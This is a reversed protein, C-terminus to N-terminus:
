GPSYATPANTRPRVVRYFTAPSCGLQECIEAVTHARSAYLAQGIAIQKPTLKPRRGGLRGRARAAALGEMTRENILDRELEAIAGMVHYFFRGMGSSTDIQDQLSRLGIGKAKCEQALSILHQLSRSVRDLKWFVLTDGPRMYQLAKTLGPRDAKAGSSTDEFIFECDAKRLADKQLDMTQDATSVRAYGVFM